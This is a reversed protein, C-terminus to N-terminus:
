HSKLVESQIRKSQLTASKRDFKKRDMVESGGVCGLEFLQRAVDRSGLYYLHEQTIKSDLYEEYTEFRAVIEHEITTMAIPFIVALVAPPSDRPIALTFQFLVNSRTNCIFKYSSLKKSRTFKSNIYRLLIVLSQSKPFSSETLINLAIPDLGHVNLYVRETESVDALLLPLSTFM